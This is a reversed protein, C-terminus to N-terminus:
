LREVLQRLEGLEGEVLAEQQAFDEAMLVAAQLFCRVERDASESPEPPLAVQIMLHREKRSFRGTRLGEFESTFYNGPIHFVVNVALPSEVGERLDRVLRMLAMVADRWRPDTGPGGAVAGVSLANAESM